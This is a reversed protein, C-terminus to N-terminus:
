QFLKKKRNEGALGEVTGEYGDIRGAGNHTEALCHSIVEETKM